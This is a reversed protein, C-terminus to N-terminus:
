EDDESDDDHYSNLDFVMDPQVYYYVENLVDQYRNKLIHFENTDVSSRNEMRGSRMNLRYLLKRGKFCSIGFYNSNSLGQSISYHKIGLLSTLENLYQDFEARRPFDELFSTDKMNKYEYQHSPLSM